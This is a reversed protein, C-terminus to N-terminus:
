FYSCCSDSGLYEDVDLRWVETGEDLDHSLVLHNKLTMVDGSFVFSRDPFSACNYCYPTIFAPESVGVDIVPDIFPFPGGVYNNDGHTVNFVPAIEETSVAFVIFGDFLEEGSVYVPIILRGHDDGLPPLSLIAPGMYSLQKVM